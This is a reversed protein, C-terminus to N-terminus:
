KLPKRYTVAMNKNVFSLYRWGPQVCRGYKSRSFELHYSTQVTM